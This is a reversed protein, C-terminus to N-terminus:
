IKEMWMQRKTREEGIVYFGKNQFLEIMKPHAWGYSNVDDICIICGSKLGNDIMSQIDRLVVAYTHTTDHYVFDVSNNKFVVPSVDYSFGEIYELEVNLYKTKIENLRANRIDAVIKFNFDDNKIKEVCDVNILSVHCGADMTILKGGYSNMLSAFFLTTRGEFTGMEYVIKPKTEIIFQGMTKINSNLSNWSGYTGRSLIPPLKLNTGSGNKIMHEYNKLIM